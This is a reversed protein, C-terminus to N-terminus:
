AADAEALRAILRHMGDRIQHTTNELAKLAGSVQKQFRELESLLEETRDAVHTHRACEVKSLVRTVELGTALRQMETCARQFRETQDRIRSLGEIAKAACQHAQTELAVTERHSSQTDGASENRFFQAVERQLRAVSTLFYGSDITRIVGNADGMFQDLNSRMEDSLVSYNSAIVGIADGENGLQAALVRFNLPVNANALYAANVVDSRTRLSHALNRLNRFTAIAPDEPLGLQVDRAAIEDGLAAAMFATYNPFGLAELKAALLEASEQPTLGRSRELESLALYEQKVTDLLPSSPRLRVSLYGDAVPTAVAFVWYYRGDKARNKVYAGIPEGRKLSQWLLWFVARPTDPHRVIKHPKGLLEDWSYISVRQFVSNGYQIIGAADTRSFFLEEFGFIIEESPTSSQSAHTNM